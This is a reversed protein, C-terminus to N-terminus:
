VVTSHKEVGCAYQCWLSFSRLLCCHCVKWQYWDGAQAGVSEEVVGHPHHVELQFWMFQMVHEKIHPQSTKWISLMDSFLQEGLLCLRTRANIAVTQCFTNLAALIHELVTANKENRAHSVALMFADYLRSSSPLSFQISMHHCVLQVIRMVSVQDLQGYSSAMIDGYIRILANWLELPMESCYKQVPLIDKVLLKTYEGGFADRLFEDKLVQVIHDVITRVNLRASGYRNGARVVYRFLAGAEMKLNKERSQTTSSKSKSATKQLSEAEKM